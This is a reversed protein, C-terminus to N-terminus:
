RLDPDFSGECSGPDMFLAHFKLPRDMALLDCIDFEWLDM